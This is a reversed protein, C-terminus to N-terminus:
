RRLCRPYDWNDPTCPSSTSPAAPHSSPGGNRTARLPSTAPRKTSVATRPVPAMSASAIPPPETPPSPAASEQSDALREHVDEEPPPTSAEENSPHLRKASLLGLSAILTVAVAGFALRKRSPAHPPDLE